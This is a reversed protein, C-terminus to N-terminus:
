APVEQEALAGALRPDRLLLDIDDRLQRLDALTWLPRDVWGSTIENGNIDLALGPRGGEIDISVLVRAYKEGPVEGRRFDLWSRRDAWDLRELRVGSREGDDVVTILPDDNVRPKAPEPGLATTGKRQCALEYAAGLQAAKLDAPIEEDTIQAYFFCELGLIALDRREAPVGELLASLKETATTM